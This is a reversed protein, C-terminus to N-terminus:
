AKTNNATKEGEISSWKVLKDGLKMKGSGEALGEDRKVLEALVAVVEDIQQPDTVLQLAALTSQLVAPVQAPPPAIYHTGYMYCPNSSECTKTVYLYRAIFAQRRKKSKDGLALKLRSLVDEWDIDEERGREDAPPAYVDEEGDEEDDQAVAPSKGNAKPQRVAASTSAESEGSDSDSAYAEAPPANQNMELWSGVKDKAAPRKPIKRLAKATPIISNIAISVASPDLRELRSQKMSSHRGRIRNVSM